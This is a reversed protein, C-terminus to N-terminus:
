VAPEWAGDENQVLTYLGPVDAHQQETCCVAHLWGSQGLVEGALNFDGGVTFPLDIARLVQGLTNLFATYQESYDIATTLYVSVVILGGFLVAHVLQLKVRHQTVVRHYEIHRSPTTM